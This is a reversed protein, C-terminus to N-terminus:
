HLYIGPEQYYESDPQMEFGICFALPAGAPSLAIRSIKWKDTYSRRADGDAFLDKETWHQFPITNHTRLLWDTHARAIDASLSQVCFTEGRSDRFWCEADSALDSM